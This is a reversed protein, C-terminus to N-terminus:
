ERRVAIAKAFKPIGYKTTGRSRVTLLKGIYQDPAASAAAFLDKQVSEPCGAYNARFTAGDPTAVIWKIIGAHKGRGSEFGVICFEGSEFAVIKQKDTTRVARDAYAQYTGALNAIVGGEYGDAVFHETAAMAAAADLVRRRPVHYILESAAVHTQLVDMRQYYPMSPTKAFFCDFIYLQFFKQGTAPNRVDSNLEELTHRHAYLEGNITADAFTDFFTALGACIQAMRHGGYLKKTPSYVCLDGPRFPVTGPAPPTLAAADQMSHLRTIMVDLGDCKASVEAPYVIRTHFKDYRHIKMPLLLRGSGGCLSYGKALQRRYLSAAKTLAAALSPPGPPTSRHYCPASVCVTHMGYKIQHYAVVDRAIPEAIDTIPVPTTRNRNGTNTKTNTNNGTNCSLGVIIQWTHQAPSQLQPFTWVGDAVFGVVASSNSARCTHTTRTHTAHPHM